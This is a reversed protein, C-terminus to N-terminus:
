PLGVVLVRDRGGLDKVVRKVALGLNQLTEAGTEGQDHGIEILAPAGRKLTHLLTPALRRLAELGDPGAKLALHPEHDRVDPDLRAIEADAIYPPNSIVLDFQERPPTAFDAHLFTARSPPHRAANRAAIDLAAQSIDIGVGTAAPWETLLTILLCGSGTGLDLIRKPPTQKLEKLATEILTESDPRPILVAPSVEFDLSWFEKRGLIYAVPERKARRAIYADFTQPDAAERELIRAERMPDDIGAAALRAAAARLHDTDVKSM